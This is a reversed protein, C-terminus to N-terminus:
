RLQRRLVKGAANRPIQAVFEIIKPVKFSALRTQCFAVLEEESAEAGDKLVVLAKVQEGTHADPVGIVACEEVKPHAQVADEIEKPYVNFGSVLILDRIRDVIYLDGDEDAIAIDGTRFWGDRLAEATEDPHQWYGGFVNAGRVVVQGPDGEEADDGDDTVLRLEVGPLPRGISGPKPRGGVSTSTLAPSTETLGYGEWITVGFRERFATFTESPLPAAGSIALRVSGFDGASGEADHLWAVYAPPAAALLTVAQERIADRAISSDFREFLVIRAGVAISLHLVVNLGFIHFLPLVCLVVDDARTAVPTALMQEVNARLNDHRLMAGKPVGSTGSTYAILALHDETLEVPPFSGTGVELLGSFSLDAPRAEAGVVVIQELAGLAERLSPTASSYQPEACFLVSAGSDELIYRAEPETLMAHVPVVISGVRWAGYMASAFAPHNPLWLAVRDGADVGLHILSAAVRDAERDLEAYTIDRGRFSIAVRDPTRRASAALADALNV